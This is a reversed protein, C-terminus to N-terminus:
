KRFPQAPAPRVESYAFGRAQFGLRKAMFRRVLLTPPYTHRKGDVACHQGCSSLTHFGDPYPGQRDPEIWRVATERFREVSLEDIRNICLGGGYSNLNDQSPRYLQGEHVFVNGGPRSNRLNTKVPNAIHPQWPGRLAPAHWVYLSWPACGGFASCLLWWRGGHQFVTADYASTNEILTAERSWTGTEENLRYLFVSKAEDCEPVAYTVGDECFTYPYSMHVGEDVVPTMTTQSGNLRLECIRGKETNYNLEEVLLRSPDAESILFPDAVFQGYEQYPSWQIVPKFQSNLFAQPPCNVVGVNWEEIRQNTLKYRFWNGVLRVWFRLMQLDKPAKYIPASTKSPPASFVETRGQVVDLCAWRVMHWSCEQIRQLTARYSSSDTPVFCKHLVVGGDLRDTLRQLLAGTVPDGRYVEWFGPPGGRYKEEDDHHFSWVGYKATQLVAGRIIGFAFKLIFDLNHSQILEIDETRFYQSWKGKREPKCEVRDVGPLCEDLPRVQYAPIQSLPFLKQQLHWLNGDLRVSKRLKTSLPSPLEVDRDIILLAPEALGDRTLNVICNRAFETLGNASCM